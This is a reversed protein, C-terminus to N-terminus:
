NVSDYRKLKLSNPDVLAYRERPETLGRRKIEDMHDGALCELFVEATRKYHDTAVHVQVADQDEYAEFVHYTDPLEPDKCLEFFTTRPEHALVLERLEKFTDEYLKAKEPKVRLVAEIVRM